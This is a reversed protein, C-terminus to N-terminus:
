LYAPQHGRAPGRRHVARRRGQGALLAITIIVDGQNVAGHSLPVASAPWAAWAAAAVLLLVGARLGLRAERAILRVGGARWTLRQWGAPVEDAEAWLAEVWDRPGAPLLRAWARGLWSM